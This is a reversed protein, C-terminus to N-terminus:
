GWTALYVTVTPSSGGTIASINAKFQRGLLPVTMATITGSV